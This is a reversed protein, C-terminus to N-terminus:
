EGQFPIEDDNRKLQGEARRANANEVAQNYGEDDEPEPYLEDPNHDGTPYEIRLDAPEIFLTDVEIRTGKAQDRMIEQAITSAWKHFDYQNPNPPLEKIMDELVSHILSVSITPTNMNEEFLKDAKAQAINREKTLQEIREHLETKNPM